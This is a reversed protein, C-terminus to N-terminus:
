SGSWWRAPLPPTGDAIRKGGGVAVETEWANGFPLQGEAALWENVDQRADADELISFTLLVNTVESM